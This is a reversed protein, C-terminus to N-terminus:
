QIFIGQPFRTINFKQLDSTKFELSIGEIIRIQWFISYLAFTNPYIGVYCLYSVIFYNIRPVMRSKIDVWTIKILTYIGTHYKSFYLPHIIKSFPILFERYIQMSCALNIFLLVHFYRAGLFSSSIKDLVITM